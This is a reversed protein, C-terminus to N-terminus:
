IWCGLELLVLNLCWSFGEDFSYFYGVKDLRSFYILSRRMSTVYNKDFLKLCFALELKFVITGNCEVKVKDRNGVSLDVEDKNPKQKKIFQQLLKYCTYIDWYWDVLCKIFCWSFTICFMWLGITYRRAQEQYKDM